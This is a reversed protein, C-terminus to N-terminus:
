KFKLVQISEIDIGYKKYVDTTNISTAQSIEYGLLKITEEVESVSKGEIELYPPIKPWFDIEIEVGNLIYSIRKNEQYNRSVYGLKELIINTNEFDDVLIEFEKTGNIKDNEIEKITLTTKEGDTRLRIWSNDKKPSFDYIYRKQNKEKIKKASLSELKSIMKNVDIDLIKTEFETKM